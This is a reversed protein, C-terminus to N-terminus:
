PVQSNARLDSRSAEASILILRNVTPVWTPCKCPEDEFWAQASFWVSSRSPLHLMLEARGEFSLILQLIRSHINSCVPEMVMERRGFGQRDPLSPHAGIAVSNEKALQVTKDM